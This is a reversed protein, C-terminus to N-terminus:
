RTASAGAVAAPAAGGPLVARLRERLAPELVMAILYAVGVVGILAAGVALPRPLGTSALVHLLAGGVCEHILYLPYTVLGAARIQAAVGRSFRFRDNFAVSAIFLAMSGVFVGSALKFMGPTTMLPDFRQAINRALEHSRTYIELLCLSFALILVAWRKFDPRQRTADFLLIGLAFFPGHRLLSMNLVGYGLDIGRMAVLDTVRAFFAILYPASWLTLGAALWYLNLRSFRMLVLTILGYFAIEIPLSWYASAVSTGPLLFFSNLVSKVSLETHLGAERWVLAPLLALVAVNFVLAVWAGPYLRLFRSRVFRWVGSSSASNAIVFGSIVFFIQVGIWGYPVASATSPFQWTFHFLAVISAAFFRLIDLGLIHEDQRM